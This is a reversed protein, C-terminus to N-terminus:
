GPLATFRALVHTEDDVRTPTASVELARWSGDPTTFRARHLTAPSQQAVRDLLDQVAPVDDDHCFDVLSRTSPMRVGLLRGFNASTMWIQRHAPDIVGLAAGPDAFVAALLDAREDRGRHPGAVRQALGRIWRVGSGDAPEARGSMRLAMVSGTTVDRAAFEEIVQYDSGVRMAKALLERMRVRCSGLLVEDLFHAGEWCRRSAEDGFQFVEPSWYTRVTEGSGLAPVRWEWGSVRPRAPLQNGYIAQAGLVGGKGAGIVPHVEVLWRRGSHYAAGVSARATRLVERFRPLLLDRATPDLRSRASTGQHLEDGVALLAMRSDFLVWRDRHPHALRKM